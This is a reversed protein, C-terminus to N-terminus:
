LRGAPDPDRHWARDRARTTLSRLLPPHGPAHLSLAAGGAYVPPSHLTKWSALLGEEQL